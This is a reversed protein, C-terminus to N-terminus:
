KGAHDPLDRPSSSASPANDIVIIPAAVHEDLNKRIPVYLDYIAKPGHLPQPAPATAFVVDPDYHQLFRMELDDLGSENREFDAM